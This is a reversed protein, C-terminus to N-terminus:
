GGSAGVGFTLTGGVTLGQAQPPQPPGEVGCAALALLLALAPPLARGIKPMVIESRGSM